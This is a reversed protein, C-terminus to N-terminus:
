MRSRKVAMIMLDVRSLMCATESAHEVVGFHKKLFDVTAADARSVFAIDPRRAKIFGAISDKVKPVIESPFADCIGRNADIAVVRFRDHYDICTAAEAELVEPDYLSTFAEFSGKYDTLVNPIFRAFGTSQIVSLTESFSHHSLGILYAMMMVMFVDGCRPETLMSLRSRFDIYDDGNIPLLRLLKSIYMNENLLYGGFGITGGITQLTGAAGAIIPNGGIRRLSQGFASRHLYFKGKAHFSSVEQYGRFKPNMKCSETIGFNCDSVSGTNRRMARRYRMGDHPDDPDMFYM